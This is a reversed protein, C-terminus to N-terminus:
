KVVVFKESRYGEPTMISLFYTGAAFDSVDFRFTENLVNELRQQGIMKGSMDLIGINVESAVQDLDFSINVHDTAPNPLVKVKMDELLTVDETGTVFGDLHLRCAVSLGDWGSYLADLFLPTTPFNVYDVGESAIYRPAIGLAPGSGDYLMAIYYAGGPELEIADGVISELEVVLLENAPTEATITYTGIAIPSLDDFSAGSAAFDIQGNNDADADYVVFNIVDLAPDGSVLAGPNALGFSAHTAIAGTPGAIVLSGINYTLNYTSLFTADAPGATRDLTGNDIAWTYDTMVFKREVVESTQDNSFVVTYEGAETPTYSGELTIVSDARGAIDEFGTFSESAGSPATVTATATVTVPDFSANVFNVSFVDVPIAQSLPTHYSYSSIANYFAKVTFSMEVPTGADVLPVLTECSSRSLFIAPITVAAASDGGTMNYVTGAGDSATAYHNCIIVAAAGAQQAQYAKLSFNCVGRRILAFKGTLDTLIEACGLSDTESFGWALEGTLTQDLQPGWLTSTGYDLPGSISAPSLVEVTVPFPSELNIQAMSMTALAVSCFLTFLKKM